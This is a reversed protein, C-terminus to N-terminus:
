PDYPGRFHSSQISGYIWVVVPLVSICCKVWIGPSSQFHWTFMEFGLFGQNSYRNEWVSESEQSEDWQDWDSNESDLSQQCLNFPNTWPVNRARLKLHNLHVSRGFIASRIWQKHCAASNCSDTERRCAILMCHAHLSCALPCGNPGSCCLIYVFCVHIVCM